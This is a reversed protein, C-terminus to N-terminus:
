AQKGVRGTIRLRDGEQKVDAGQPNGLAFLTTQKGNQELAIRVDSVKTPATFSVELPAATGVYKQPQDIAVTPGALRGAFLFVGAAALLLILFFAAVYRM